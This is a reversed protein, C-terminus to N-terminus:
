ALPQGRSSTKQALGNLPERQQDVADVPLLSRRPRGDPAPRLGGRDATTLLSPPTTDLLHLLAMSYSLHLLVRRLRGTPSPKLCGHAAETLLQPLLTM